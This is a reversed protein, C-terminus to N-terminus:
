AASHRATEREPVTRLESPLSFLVDEPMQMVQSAARRFQPTLPRDGWHIMYLHTRNIGVRGAFWSKRQGRDELIRFLQALRQERAM